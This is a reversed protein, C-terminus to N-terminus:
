VVMDVVEGRWTIGRAEAQTIVEAKEGEPFRTAQPPISLMSVMYLM